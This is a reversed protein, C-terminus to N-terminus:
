ARGGVLLIHRHDASCKRDLRDLVGKCNSMFATPKKVLGEGLEDEQIMGFACMHSTVKRVGSLNM